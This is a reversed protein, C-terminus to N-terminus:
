HSAVPEAFGRKRLLADASPLRGRFAKYADAPDQSGGAAYITDHLRKATAADFIDGTEEFAAFADADLVESWMYSYYASAYGGGSFIHAFHPSRHRMVIEQPMAIHELADAEFTDVDAAAKIDADSTLSHFDLDVMASAIYEVTGFGKNFNRAAILRQLLEEPMAEGTQYHRAFRRLVYPQELWHEYLQSPLEVFDTAVSTGSISPYTVSSLLGHLAHGFEHFLTRADEFSLLTPEGGPAKTFNCVNVILPRIDGALKEQDRISTMWAGSRKSARAFYDGFFLGIQKGGSDKVEWVRVDPHWTPVDPRPTFWLGFLRQATYFTAEILNDLSLYPKIVGEDFDCLKHRLKEAYYRWDWAELRFNSGEQAILQQMADRDALARARAPAWVTELLNRAAVPTKAMADDLRYHAFNEYGLLKAREARLRVMEAINAKNDTAGGNDGRMVFGRFIKERLDRRDSFQLFPEVSSRSLTVVYGDLGRDRAEAKMAERMFDPLGTLESETLRLTFSQEDALVNQSFSTGLAALREIIEAVRKKAPAGLAAGARRFGTHYREIVRKQEATLDLKEADQMLTDIRKFLVANTNIANWHRALQPAVEREIELLADNTHAGALLHFVNGVRDLARGSREMPAITNDFTPPEPNAAIAAVEATHEALARAYAPRFQEPGIADFSPVGDPTAWAAFFVNGDTSAPTKATEIKNM